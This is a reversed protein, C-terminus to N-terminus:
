WGGVEAFAMGGRRAKAREAEVARKLRSGWSPSYALASTAVGLESFSVEDEHPIYRACGAVRGERNMLLLQWSRADHPHVLRGDRSLQKRDVAGDDVYVRGRLRQAENLLFKHQVADVQLSGVNCTQASSPPALLIMHEFAYRSGFRM